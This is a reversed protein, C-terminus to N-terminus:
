GNLPTEGIAGAQPSGIALTLVRFSAALESQNAPRRPRSCKPGPRTAGGLRTSSGLSSVAHDVVPRPVVGDYRTTLAESRGRRTPVLLSIV